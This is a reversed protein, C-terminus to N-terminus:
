PVSPPEPPIPHWADPHYRLVHLGRRYDPAYIYWVGHGAEEGEPVWYAASVSGMALQAYGVIDLSYDEEDVAIVRVGHEYWGAALLYRGDPAGGAPDQMVDFWHSSCGQANAPPNGDEFTLSTEPRLTDLPRMPQGRDFNAISWTTVKGPNSPCQVTVNTESGTILLEGPQLQGPIDQLGPEDTYSPGPDEADRPQWRDADPRVNNHQYRAGIAQLDAATGRALEVPQEPDTVDLIVRPTTDTVMIQTGDAHTSRNLAHAASVSGEGTLGRERWSGVIEIDEESALDPPLRYISGRNGYVWECTDEACHVTHNVGASFWAVWEPNRPDSTDIVHLGTTGPVPTSSGGDAAVLVRSGDAGVQVDENQSAPLPLHGILLPWEPQDVNYISLGKMGWVYFLREGDVERFQGSPAPVDLPIYGVYDINESTFVPVNPQQLAPMDGAGEAAAPLIAVALLLASVAALNPLQRV